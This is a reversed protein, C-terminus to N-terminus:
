TSSRPSMRIPSLRPSEGAEGSRPSTLSQLRRRKISLIDANRLRAAENSFLASIQHTSSPLRFPASVEYLRVSTHLVRMDSKLLSQAQEAGHAGTSAIVCGRSNWTGFFYCRHARVM